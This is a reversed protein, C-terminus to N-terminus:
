SNTGNSKRLANALNSGSVDYMNESAQTQGPSTFLFPNQNMKIQGLYDNTQVPSTIGRLYNAVQQQSTGGGVGAAGGSGGVGGLLKAINNGAGYLKKATNAYNLADSNVFGNFKGADLGAQSMYDNMGTYGGAGALEPMAFAAGEFTGPNLGAAAMYANPTATAANAAAAAALASDIGYAGLMAGGVFLAGQGFTSNDASAIRKANYQATPAYNNTVLSQYQEPTIAGAGAAEQLTNQIRANTIDNTKGQGADWGAKKLDLSLVANYYAAPDINKIEELQQTWDNVKNGGALVSNNATFANFINDSLEQSKQQAFQQPNSQKLQYDELAKKANEMEQTYLFYDYSSNADIYKNPDQRTLWDEQSLVNGVPRNSSPDYLFNGNADRTPASIADFAANADVEPAPRNAINDFLGM